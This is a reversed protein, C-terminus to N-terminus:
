GIMVRAQAENSEIAAYVMALSKLNDSAATLPTTGDRISTLFDQICGAHGMADLTPADPVIVDRLESLFSDGRIGVQARLDVAGDWTASGRTGIARWDAEWTTPLGDASWSGRYTYISGDSMEFIAVSSAEHDWWSQKPKWSKSYVAVPDANLIYRAADFTHIAMDILLPYRMHLRFNTIHVGMFYDSHLTTIDGISGSDIVQKLRRINPDFRRNQMIAYQVGAAQGAQVMRRASDMSLALPKEGLVHCGHAFAAHAITDHAEPITCDFVIDPQTRDLVADIDDGTVVDTFGYHTIQAQIANANIDVLGVLRVDWEPRETIPDLWARCISGCGALVVNFTL